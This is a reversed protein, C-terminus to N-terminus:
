ITMGNKLQERLDAMDTSEGGALEAFRPNPLEYMEYIHDRAKEDSSQM